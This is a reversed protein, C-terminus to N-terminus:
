RGGVLGRRGAAGTSTDKTFPEMLFCDGPALRAKEDPVLRVPGIWEPGGKM